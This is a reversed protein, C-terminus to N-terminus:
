AEIKLPNKTQRAKKFFQLVIGEFYFATATHVSYMEKSSM